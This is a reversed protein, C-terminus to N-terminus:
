LYGSGLSPTHIFDLVHLMTSALRFFIFLYISLHYEAFFINAAARTTGILFGEPIVM